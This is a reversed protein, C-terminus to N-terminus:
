VREMVLGYLAGCLIASVNHTLLQGAVHTRTCLCVYLPLCACFSGCVEDPDGHSSSSCLFSCFPLHLSLLHRARFDNSSHWDRASLCAGPGGKYQRGKIRSAESAWEYYARWVALVVCVAYSLADCVCARSCACPPCVRCLLFPFYSTPLCSCRTTLLANQAQAVLICLLSQAGGLPVM